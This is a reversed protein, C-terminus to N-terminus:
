VKALFSGLNGASMSPLIKLLPEGKTQRSLLDEASSYISMFWLLSEKPAAVVTM